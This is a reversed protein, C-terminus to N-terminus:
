EGFLTRRVKRLIRRVLDKAGALWYGLLLPAPDAASWVQLVDPGVLSRLWSYISWDGHRRYDLFAKVDNWFYLYQLDERQRRSKTRNGSALDDYALIPINVGSRTALLNWSSVRPNIELLIFEQTEEHQKFQLLAPGRYDMTKLIRFARDALDPVWPSRVFCGIGAYTPYTRIKQGTFVGLPTGDRAVYAHVSFLRDDRGPIYEQLATRFFGDGLLDATRLLDTSSRAVLAKKGGVLSAIRPQSWDQPSLPKVILPYPLSNALQTLGEDAQPVRTQPVPLGLETALEHFTGKDVCASVLSEDALVPRCTPEIEARIANLIRLDPDATPFVVPPCTSTEAADKLTGVLRNGDRTMWPAHIFETTYRSHRLPNDRYESLVTVSVGSRGLTRVVSLDGQHGGLCSMVIAPAQRRSNM